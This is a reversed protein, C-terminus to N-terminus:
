DAASVLVTVAQSQWVNLAHDFELPHVQVFSLHSYLSPRQSFIPKVVLTSFAYLQALAAFCVFVCSM